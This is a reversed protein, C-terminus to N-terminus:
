EGKKGKLQELINILKEPIPLGIKGANEILSIAENAIFFMIVIERIAVANETALEIIFALAVVLLTFVKKVIGKWGIESNVNKNHVAAMVGSIYDIVLMAILCILLNDMGGLWYAIFGGVVGIIGKVVNGM